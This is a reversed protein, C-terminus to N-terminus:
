ANDEIESALIIINERMKGVARVMIGIEDNRKLSKEIQANEVTKFDYAAFREIMESVASIPKTVSNVIYVIIGALVAM